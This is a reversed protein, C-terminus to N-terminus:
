FTADYDWGRRISGRYRDWDREDGRMANWDQRLHSELDDNWSSYRSGYYRRAGYGFRAAPEAEDFNPASMPPISQKGAAQRVTDDINQNLDPEDGGFDHKTQEWDRRFAERVRDWGSDYDHSWWTPNDHRTMTDTAM